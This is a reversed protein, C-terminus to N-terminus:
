QSVNTAVWEDIQNTFDAVAQADKLSPFEGLLVQGAQKASGGHKQLLLIAKQAQKNQFLESPLNLIGQLHAQSQIWAVLSPAENSTFLQSPVLFIGWGGAVLQNVSQELLLHHVYSHGKQAATKFHTAQDDRPYYGVPLDSVVLDMKPMVLPDLADQHFLQIDRHQLTIMVNAMALMSDDNDVGFGQIQVDDVQNLQNIVTTLLNGTGVAPDLVTMQTQRMVQNALYAVLFGISDPTLQHNADIADTEIDKLLALQLGRRTTEADVLLPQIEQYLQTLKMAATADPRGAEVRVQGGDILDDGVEILADLYSTSLQQQLLLTAQDLRHFLSEVDTQALAVM